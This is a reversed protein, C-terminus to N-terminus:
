CGLVRVGDAAVGGRGWVVGDAIGSADARCVDGGDEGGDGGGSLAVADPDVHLGPQPRGLVAPIDKAQLLAVRTDPAHTLPCVNVLEDRWLLPPTSTSTSTSPSYPFKSSSLTHTKLVEM